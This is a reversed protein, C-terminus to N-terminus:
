KDEYISVEELFYKEFYPRNCMVIDAVFRMGETFGKERENDTDKYMFDRSDANCRIEYIIMKIFRSYCDAMTEPTYGLAKIAADFAEIDEKANGQRERFQKMIKIYEDNIKM